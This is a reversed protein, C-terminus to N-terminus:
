KKRITRRIERAYVSLSVNYTLHTKNREYIPKDVSVNVHKIKQTVMTVVNAYM